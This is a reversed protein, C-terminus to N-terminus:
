IKIEFNDIDFAKKYKDYVTDSPDSATASVPISETEEVAQEVAQEVVEEPTEEASAVAEEVVPEANELNEKNKTSLLVEMNKQYSEFSEEDLDKIQAAVVEKDKESLEYTDDMFAMRQNFQEEKIRTAKEEELALLSAKVKELEEEIEKNKSSVNELDENAKALEQEVRSKEENYKESALKLEDQIFDAVASASITKLSEDTIDNLHTIKMIINGEQTNQNVDNNESQSVNEESALSEAEEKPAEIKLSSTLSELNEEENEAITSKTAVGKVDAAPTETLGIGLPLVDNIVKRYVYEEGLKGDGGEAVLYKSVEDVEQAESILCTSDEINKAEADPMVVIDFDEFGLEWSASIKMYDETTPDSANEIINALEENAIRWVVGGLTVNFPGKVDKAEEETLPEDSGFKSFGATLISGIIRDRNHEINIPKNIFSKYTALATETDIVDGNKNVRNVVFANFAIPLLDMNKEADVEPLFSGVDVLSALALHKDKEESVMPRISSSFTTKYKFTKMKKNKNFTNALILRAGKIIKLIFNM